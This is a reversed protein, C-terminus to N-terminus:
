AMDGMFDTSLDSTLILKARHYHHARVYFLEAM